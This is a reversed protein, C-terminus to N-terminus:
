SLDQIIKLLQPFHFPKALVPYDKGGVLMTDVGENQDKSKLLGTLFIVSTNACPAHKKIESVAEGGLVDTLLYDMIILDPHKEKAMGIGEVGNNAILVNYGFKTLMYKLNSSLDTDDEVILITKM